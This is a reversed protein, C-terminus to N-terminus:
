AEKGGEEMLLDMFRETFLTEDVKKILKQMLGASRRCRRM